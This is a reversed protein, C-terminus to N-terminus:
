MQKGFGGNDSEIAYGSGEVTFEPRTCNWGAQPLQKHMRSNLVISKMSSIIVRTQNFTFDKKLLRLQFSKLRM